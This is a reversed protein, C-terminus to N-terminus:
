PRLWESICSGSECTCCEMTHTLEPGPTKLPFWSPDAVPWQAPMPWNYASVQVSRPTIKDVRIVHGGSFKERIM